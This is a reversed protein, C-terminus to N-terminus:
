RLLSIVTYGGLGLALLDPVVAILGAIQWEQRATARDPRGALATAVLAITELGVVPIFWFLSLFGLGTTVRIMGAPSSTAADAYRASSILEAVAGVGLVTCGLALLHLVKAFIRALSMTAIAPTTVVTQWRLARGCRKCVIATDQIREACFPCAKLPLPLIL